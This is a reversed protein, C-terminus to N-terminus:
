IYIYVYMICLYMYPPLRQIQRYINNTLKCLFLRNYNYTNNKVLASLESFDTNPSMKCSYQLSRLRWIKLWTERGWIIGVSICTCSPPSRRPKAMHDTCLISYFTYTVEFNYIITNTWIMMWYIKGNVSINNRDHITIINFNAIMDIPILQLYLICLFIM